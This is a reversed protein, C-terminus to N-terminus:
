RSPIRMLCLQPKNAWRSLTRDVYQLFLCPRGLKPFEKSINRSNILIQIQFDTDTDADVVAVAVTLADANTDIDIHLLFLFCVRTALGRNPKWAFLNLFLCFILWSWTQSKNRWNEIQHETIIREMEMKNNNNRKDM